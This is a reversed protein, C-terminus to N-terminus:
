ILYCGLGSGAKNGPESGRKNQEKMKLENQQSVEEELVGEMRETM